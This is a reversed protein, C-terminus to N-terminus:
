ADWGHAKGFRKAMFDVFARIKASLHRNELYVAHVSLEFANFAELAVQLRGARLDPGVVYTPCLAVGADALLLRRVATASDVQFRGTAKVAFRAGDRQFPWLAGDRFNADVVCEHQELDEPKEPKGFREFYAPSACLAIRAPALRRAIYSSDELAGIRIALDYGEEILRVYRDTLTLKVRMQPHLDLFDQIADVLHLEGFSTPATIRLEGRPADNEARLSAHLEDFEELLRVCRPHYARGSETLQTRRTTRNLLRVGLADELAKVSKSVNQPSTHLREAAATFGGMEVVAAFARMHLISDMLIAM